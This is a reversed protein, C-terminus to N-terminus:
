REARIRDLARETQAPTLWTGERTVGIPVAQFRDSDMAATVGQASVVSVEHEASRGGFLIGVKLRRSMATVFLGGGVGGRAGAGRRVARAGAKGGAGDARRHGRGERRRPQPHFERASRL